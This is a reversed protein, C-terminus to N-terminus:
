ARKDAELRSRACLELSRPDCENARRLQVSNEWWRVDTLRMAWLSPTFGPGVLVSALARVPGHTVDLPSFNM